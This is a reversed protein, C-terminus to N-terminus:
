TYGSYNKKRKEKDKNIILDLFSSFQLGLIANNVWIRIKAVNLIKKWISPILFKKAKIKNEVDNYKSKDELLLCVRM